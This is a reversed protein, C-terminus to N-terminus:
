FSLETGAIPIAAAGGGAIGAFIFFVTVTAISRQVTYEDIRWRGDKMM